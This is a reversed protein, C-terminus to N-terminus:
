RAQAGWIQGNYQPSQPYGYQQPAYQQQPVAYQQPVYAPAAPAFQQGVPPVVAPETMPVRNYGAPAIMEQAPAAESLSLDVRNEYQHWFQQSYPAQAPVGWQAAQASQAYVHKYNYPRFSHYGGYFPMVQIWGHKWPEQDDYPFLQEGRLTSDAAFDQASAKAVGGLAVVAVLTHLFIKPM